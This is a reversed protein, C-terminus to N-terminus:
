DARSLEKERILDACKEGIMICAANTNGSVLTPMVSADAVRLGEIGRVRLRDDVVAMADSGMRATGVPHFVTSGTRRAYDLLADDGQLAEGPAYESQIYAHLAPRAAIRRALRMGAVITRRDLEEALYNPQIAPPTAADPSRLRIEGRSQPRLQCVHQTFGSFPHLHAASTDSSFNIFHFQIDPTALEPRTRVFIGASAASLALPGRRFLAYDIGARLMRLRRRMVDNVTIPARCRYAFAVKLHDQLNRGVGPADCVTEIGFSQLQAGPGIGSLMLLQPTNVAGGCLLVERRARIVETSRDRRFQIGMARKGAFLIRTALGHTIVRLNDRRMAPRLFAVAASCRRGRRSTTQYYGVGEQDRGNFDDNRPVGEQEAAAIFAESLPHGGAVDSVALEGDTGHWANTPGMRHESRRFYPLVDAYSWGANGLQRWHDYDAAQGRVYLLGNISSSGGLVKGRPWFIRRGGLEPVPETEYCWNIRPDAFTKGYGLPIHIWPNRDAGGAELVAVTVSPDESLRAALV